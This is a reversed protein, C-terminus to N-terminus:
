VTHYTFKYPNETDTNNLMIEPLPSPSRATCRQLCACRGAAGLAECLEVTLSGSVAHGSGDGLCESGHQAAALGLALAECANLVFAPNLRDGDSGCFCHAEVDVGGGCM